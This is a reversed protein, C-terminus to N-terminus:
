QRIKQTRDTNQEYQYIRVLDSIQTLAERGEHTHDLGVFQFGMLIKGDEGWGLHRFQADAYISKVGAGFSLRVGVVDGQEVVQTPDDGAAVQFGGASLNTLQGTWVPSEEEGGTPEADKGGLWFSARAIKGEPIDVRNFARRQLRQMKVPFRLVLTPIELGDDMRLQQMGFVVANCIHKHHKLKFSIGLNQNPPFERSIGGEPEGPIEIFIKDRMMNLFRSRLNTWIGDEQISVTMPINKECALRLADHIQRVKLEQLIAM